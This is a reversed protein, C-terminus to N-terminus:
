LGNYGPAALEPDLPGQVSLMWKGHFREFDGAVQRERKIVEHTAINSTNLMVTQWICNLTNPLYTTLQIDILFM